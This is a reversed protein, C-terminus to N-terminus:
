RSAPSTLTQRISVPTDRKTLGAARSRKSSEHLIAGCFCTQRARITRILASPTPVCAFIRSVPLGLGADPAPLLTERGLAQQSLVRGDRMALSPGETASYRRGSSPLAESSAVCQVPAAIASPRAHRLGPAACRARARAETSWGCRMRCNLSELSGSNTSLSRSEDLEVDVRRRLGDNERSVFFALNLREISGLGAQRHFPAAGTGHAVVALRMSRRGQEGAMFTTSPANIPRM